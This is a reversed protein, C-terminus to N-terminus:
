AAKPSLRQTRRGNDYIALLTDSVAQWLSGSVGPVHKGKARQLIQYTPLLRLKKVLDSEQFKGGYSQVFLAMGRLMIETYAEKDDPWVACIIRIVSELGDAGLARYIDELTKVANLSRVAKSRDGTKNITCGHKRVVADIAMIEQNGARLKADYKENAFLPKAGDLALFLAAEQPVTLGVHVDCRLKEVKSRRALELRHQGDIVAYTGDSRMSVTVIGALQPDFGNAARNKKMQRLHMESIGRQYSRDVFLLHLPLYTEYAHNGTPKPEPEQSHYVTTM